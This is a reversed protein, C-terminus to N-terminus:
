RYPSGFPYWAVYIFKPILKNIYQDVWRDVQAIRTEPVYIVDKPRLQFGGADVQQALTAKKSKRVSLSSALDLQFVRRQGAEYRIVVVSQPKATETALGGAETIAEVLTMPAPMYVMGPKAVMGHVYVRRNYLSRVIVSIRPNKLHWGYQATLESELTAPTKGQAKVEGLLQLSINGDPRIIQNVDLDPTYYFKVEIADGPELITREESPPPQFSTANRIAAHVEADNATKDDSPSKAGSPATDIWGTGAPIAPRSNTSDLPPAADVWGSSAVTTAQRQDDAGRKASSGQSLL